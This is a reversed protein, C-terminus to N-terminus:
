KFRAREKELASTSILLAGNRLTYALPVPNCGGKFGITAKNMVVDCLRCIVEDKREYYGTPGCIDCADLGVGYAVENKKIIIFRMETKDEAIYNYRHLRGDQIKPIPIIIEGNATDFPEAQSLEVDRENYTKLATLTCLTLVCTAAATGSWRKRNRAAARMKRHEAPNKFPKNTEDLKNSKDPKDLDFKDLDFSKVFVIVPLTLAAAMLIFVFFAPHNIAPTIAKFLPRAMPILRRAFLVQLIAALQNTMNICLGISLIIRLAAPPANKGTEFIALATVFAIVLGGAYGICKFLFDTSFVSGGSLLFEAPYLFLTPLAYFLLLGMLISPALIIASPFRPAGAGKGKSNPPKGTSPNQKASRWLLALVIASAILAFSLTWANIISRNILATTRRLVTLVLALLTAVACSAAFFARPHPATQKALLACLLGGLAAITFANEIVQIFYHTM